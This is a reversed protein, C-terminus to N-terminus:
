VNKFKKRKIHTHFFLALNEFKSNNELDIALKPDKSM